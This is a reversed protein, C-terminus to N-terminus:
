FARAEIAGVVSRDVRDLPQDLFLPHVAVENTAASELEGGFRLVVFLQRRGAFQQVGLNVRVNLEHRTVANAVFDARVSKIAPQQLGGARLHMDAREPDAQRLRGCAVARANIFRCGTLANSRKGLPAKRMLDARPTM